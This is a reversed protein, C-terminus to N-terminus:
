APRLETLPGGAVSPDGFQGPVGMANQITSWLDGLGRNAPDRGVGIANGGEVENGKFPYKIYQGQKMGLAQGGAVVTVMNLQNHGETIESVWAIITRDLVNLTKLANVAYAFRQAYWTDISVWRDGSSQGFGYHSVSHHSPSGTDAGTDYGESAGQWQMVAVRRTGCAFATAIMDMWLEGRSRMQAEVGDPSKDDNQLPAKAPMASMKTMLPDVSCTGAAVMATVKQEVSQLSDLYSDLHAKDNSNIRSRFTSIDGKVFDLVSQNRARARMLAATQDSTQAQGTLNGFLDTFVTSFNKVFPENVGSARWSLFTRWHPQDRYPDVAVVLPRQNIAMGISQDISPGYGTFQHATGEASQGGPANQCTLIRCIDQHSAIYTPTKLNLGKIVSVDSLFPQLPTLSTGLTMSTGNATADFCTTTTGNTTLSRKHGNPTFFILLNGSPTASAAQSSSHRLFPGLLAAGAGLGRLLSRRSFRARSRNSSNQSM